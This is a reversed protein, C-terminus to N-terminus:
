KKKRRYKTLKSMSSTIKYQHAVLYQYIYLQYYKKKKKPPSLQFPIVLLLIIIKPSPKFEGKGLPPEMASSVLFIFDKTLCVYIDKWECKHTLSVYYTRGFQSHLTNRRTGPMTNTLSTRNSFSDSTATQAGHICFEEILLFKNPRPLFKITSITQIAILM